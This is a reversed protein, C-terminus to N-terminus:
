EASSDGYTAWTNLMDYYVTGEYQSLVEAARNKISVSHWTDSYVTITEGTKLTIQLYGRGTFQRDTNYERIAVISGVFHDTTDDDDIPTTASTYFKGPTAAVNLSNKGAAALSEFTLESAATEDSYYDVPVILTGYTVSEVLDAYSELIAVQDSDLLTAFRIGSTATDAAGNADTALRIQSAKLTQVIGANIAYVNNGYLQETKEEVTYYSGDVIVGYGNAPDYAKYDAYKEVSVNDVYFCGTNRTDDWDAMIQAVSWQNAPVTTAATKSLTGVYVGNFYIDTHAAAAELTLVMTLKNWTDPQFAVKKSQGNVQFVYESSSLTIIWTRGMNGLNGCIRGDAGAPVYFDTNFVFTNIAGETADYEYLKHYPKYTKGTNTGGKIADLVGKDSTADYIPFSKYFQLKTAFNEETVEAAVADTAKDAGYVKTAEGEVYTIRYVYATTETRGVFIRGRDNSSNEPKLLALQAWTPAASDFTESVPVSDANYTHNGYDSGFFDFGVQEGVTVIMDIKLATNGDEMKTYTSYTSGQAADTGITLKNGDTKDENDITFFRDDTPEPDPEPEVPDTDTDTDTDTDGGEGGEEGGEEGGGTTYGPRQTEDTYVCVNDVAYSGTFGNAASAVAQLKSFAFTKIGIETHDVSRDMANYTYMLTTENDKNTWYLKLAGAETDIVLTITFWENMPLENSDAVLVAAKPVGNHDAKPIVLKGNSATLRYLTLNQDRHNAHVATTCSSSWTPATVDIMVTTTSPIYYDSQLILTKVGQSFGNFGDPVTLYTADATATAADVVFVSDNTKGYATGEVVSMGTKNGNTVGDLSQNAFNTGTVKSAPLDADDTEPDPDVPPTEGGEGSDTDTDTDTDGGDGDGGGVTPLLSIDTYIMANDVAYSGSLAVTGNTANKNRFMSFTFSLVSIGSRAESGHSFQYENYQEGDVYQKVKGTATEIVTSLTFWKGMEIESKSITTTDSAPKSNFTTPSLTVKEGDAHLQYIEMRSASTDTTTGEVRYSYNAVGGNVVGTTGKPFYYDAQLIVYTNGSSIGCYRYKNDTGAGGVSNQALMLYSRTSGTETSDVSFVIDNADAKGYQTGAVAAMGTSTWGNLLSTNTTSFDTAFQYHTETTTDDAFTPITLLPVIMMLALVLAAIRSSTRTKM